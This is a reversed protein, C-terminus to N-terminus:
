SGSYRYAERIPFPSTPRRTTSSPTRTTSMAKTSTRLSLYGIPLNGPTELLTAERHVGGPPASPKGPCDEVTVKYQLDEARLELSFSGPGDRVVERRTGSELVVQGGVEDGQENLVAVDFFPFGSEDPNTIEYVLRFREGTIRFPGVKLDRSTPGVTEVLLAGPCETSGPATGANTTERPDYAQQTSEQQARAAPAGLMTVGVLGVIAATLVVNLLRM